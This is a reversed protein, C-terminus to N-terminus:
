RLLGENVEELRAGRLRGVPHAVCEQVAFPTAVFKTVALQILAGAGERRPQDIV